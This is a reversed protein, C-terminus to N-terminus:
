SKRAGLKMWIELGALLLLHMDVVWFDEATAAGSVEDGLWGDGAEFEGLPKEFGL